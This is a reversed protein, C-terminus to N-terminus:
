SPGALLQVGVPTPMAIDGISRDQFLYILLLALACRAACVALQSALGVQAQIPSPQNTSM